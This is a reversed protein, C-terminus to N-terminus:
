KIIKNLTDVLKSIRERQSRNDNTFKDLRQEAIAMRMVHEKLKNFNSFFSDKNLDLNQSRFLATIM